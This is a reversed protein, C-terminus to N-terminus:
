TGEVVKMERVLSCEKNIENLYYKVEIERGFRKHVYVSPKLDEFLDTHTTAALVARGEQRALKQM